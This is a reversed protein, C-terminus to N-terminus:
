TNTIIANVSDKFRKDTEYWRKLTNVLRLKSLSMRESEIFEGLEKEISQSAHKLDLWGLKPRKETMLTIAYDKARQFKADRAVAGALAKQHRLAAPIDIEANYFAHTAADAASASAEVILPWSADKNGSDLTQQALDNLVCAYLFPYMASLQNHAIHELRRDSLTEETIEGKQIGDRLALMFDDFKTNKFTSEYTDRLSSWTSLILDTPSQNSLKEFRM